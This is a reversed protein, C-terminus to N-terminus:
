PWEEMAVSQLVQAQRVVLKTVDGGGQGAQGLQHTQVDALINEDVQGLRDLLAFM